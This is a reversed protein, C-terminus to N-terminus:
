RPFVSIGSTTKVWGVVDMVMSGDTFGCSNLDLLDPGEDCSGDKSIDGEVLLRVLGENSGLLFQVIGEASCPFVGGNTGM